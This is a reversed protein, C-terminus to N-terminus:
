APSEKRQLQTHCNWTVIKCDKGQYGIKMFSVVFCWFTSPMLDFKFKVVKLLYEELTLISQIHTFNRYFNTLRNMWYKQKGSLGIFPSPVDQIELFRPIKSIRSPPTHGRKGVINFVCM